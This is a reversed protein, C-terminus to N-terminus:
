DGMYSLLSGAGAGSLAKQAKRRGFMGGAKRLAPSRSTVAKQLAKQGTKTSMAALTALFGASTPSMDSVGYSAGGLATPLLLPALVGLRDATGSNSITPANEAAYRVVDPVKDGRAAAGVGGYKKTNNTFAGLMQKPTPTGRAAITAQEIPKLISYAQDAQNLGTVVSEGGNRMMQGKLADQVMSIADRYDQEFGPKTAESKYGSLGRMTQQYQKGTIATPLAQRATAQTAAPTMGADTLAALLEDVSQQEPAAARGANAPDFAKADLVYAPISQQGDNFARVTRHNGDKIVYEGNELRVAVPRDAFGDILPDAYKGANQENWAMQSQGSRAASLPVDEVRSFNRMEDVTPVRPTNLQSPMPLNSRNAALPDVRSAMAADFKGKLDPPLTSAMNRANGFEDAFRADFPVTVNGVANDYAGSVTQQASALPNAADLQGGVPVVSDELAARYVADKAEGRRAAMLDGLYPMSELKQMNRGIVSNNGLMEGLSLPIGRQTLYQVAPDTVGQLGKQIGKGIGMGLGSGLAATAAGTLPDGETTAGYIGGYAADTALQRGAAAKTGGGLLSPALKGAVKSGVKGLLATGGIVGAVDGAFASKPNQQRLYDLGEGGALMQPIGFGGANGATALATGISTQPANNRFQEFGSMPVVMDDVNVPYPKGPNQKLWARGAPTEQGWKTDPPLTVGKSAAFAAIEERSAGQAIMKGIAANVGALAPNDVTRYEAGYPAYGGRDPQPADGLYVNSRDAQDPPPPGGAGQQPLSGAVAMDNNAQPQEQLQDTPLVWEPAPQGLEQLRNEARRRLNDLKGIFGSDRNWTSPQNADIFNALERDSQEGSGPVRFASMGLQGLGASLTNIRDNANSPFYEGISQLPGQGALNQNYLTQLENITQMMTRLDGATAGAKLQTESEPGAQGAKAAAAEAAAADAAAKRLAYPLTAETVKNDLQTKTLTASAQPGEYQFTPDAPMQPATGNAPGITVLSGDDQREVIYGNIVRREAM